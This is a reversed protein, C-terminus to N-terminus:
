RRSAGNWLEALYHGAVFVVLDMTANSASEQRGTEFFARGWDRREAYQEALEYAMAATLAWARPMRVLGAALGTAFHVVTWPDLVAQNQEEKSTAVLKM